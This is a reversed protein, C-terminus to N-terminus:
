QCVTFPDAITLVGPGCGVDLLRSHGDLRPERELTAALESSYPPRGHMYHAAAGRYITPDYAV